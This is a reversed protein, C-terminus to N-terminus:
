ALVSFNKVRVSTHYTYFGHKTAVGYKTQDGSSLTHDIIKEGDLFVRVRDGKAVVRVDAWADVPTRSTASALDTTSGANIKQLKWTDTATLMVVLTNNLDILRFYTACVAAQNFYFASRVEVNAAASEVVFVNPNWNAASHVVQGNEVTIGTGSLRQWEHGTDAVSYNVNEVGRDFTDLVVVGTPHLVALRPLHLSNGDGLPTVRPGVTLYRVNVSATSSHSNQAMVLAVVGPETEVMASYGSDAAHTQAPYQEATWTTGNDYSVRLAAKYPTSVQECSAIITGDATQVLACRGAGAAFASAPASWTTGDNSSRSLYISGLDTRLAALLDGDQLEIVVPEFVDYGLASGDGITRVQWSAAGDDSTLALADWGSDIRGYIPVLLRGTATEIMPATVADECTGTLFQRPLMTPTAWTAGEDASTTYYAAGNESGDWTFYTMTLGLSTVSLSSDRKDPSAGGNAVATVPSSWTAGKDDSHQTVIRGDTSLHGTASRYAVILRGSPCETIGPFADYQAGRVLSVPRGSYLRNARILSTGTAAAPRNSKAAVDVIVPDVVSDISATLAAEELTGPTTFTPAWFGQETVDFTAGTTRNATSKIWSGDPAQRVSGTTVAQAATWAAAGPGPLGQDGTTGTPGTAGTAGTAGTPGTAGTAGTAGTPGVGLVPRLSVSGGSAPGTITPTPLSKLEM